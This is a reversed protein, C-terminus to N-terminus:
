VGASATVLTKGGRGSGRSAQRTLYLDFDSVLTNGWRCPVLFAGQYWGEVAPWWGSSLDVDTVAHYYKFDSNRLPSFSIDVSDSDVEWSSAWVTGAAAALRVENMVEDHGDTEPVAEYYM